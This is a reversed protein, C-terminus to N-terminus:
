SARVSGPRLKKGLWARVGLGGKGARALLWFLMGMALTVLRPLDIWMLMNAALWAASGFFLTSIWSTGSM